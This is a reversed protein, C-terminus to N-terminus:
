FRMCLQNRNNIIEKATLLGSRNKFIDRASLTILCGHRSRPPCRLMYTGLVIPLLQPCREAVSEDVTRQNLSGKLRQFRQNSFQTFM